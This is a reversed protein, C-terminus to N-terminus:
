RNRSNDEPIYLDLDRPRRRGNRHSFAGRSVDASPDDEISASVVRLWPQSASPVKKEPVSERRKAQVARVEHRASQSRKRQKRKKKKM